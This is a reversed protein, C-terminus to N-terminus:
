SSTCISKHNKRLILLVTSKSFFFGCIGIKEEKKQFKMNTEKSNEGKNASNFLYNKSYIHTAAFQKETEGRNYARDVTTVETCTWNTNKHNIKKMQCNKPNGIEM